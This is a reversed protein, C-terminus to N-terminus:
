ATAGIRRGRLWQEFVVLSFLIKHHDEKGSRHAEFLQWVAAPELVDFMLSRPDRLYHSLRADMSGSFWGDVVNV